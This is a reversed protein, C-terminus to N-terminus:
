KLSQQLTRSTRPKNPKCMKETDKTVTKPKGYHDVSVHKNADM